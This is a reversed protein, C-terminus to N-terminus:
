YAYTVPAAAGAYQYGYAAPASYYAGGYTYPAAAYPTTYAAAAYPAAYPAAYTAAAYPTAAFRASSYVLPTTSAPTQVATVARKSRSKLAVVPSGVVPTGYYGGFYPSSVVPTGVAARAATNYYEAAFNAKAAQVEPTDQVPQPLGRSTDQSPVAITKTIVPSGAVYGGAYPYAGYGYVGAAPVGAYGAYGPYFVQPEALAAVVLLSFAVLSQMTTAQQAASTSQSNDM